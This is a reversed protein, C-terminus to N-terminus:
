RSRRNMSQQMTETSEMITELKEECYTKSVRSVTLYRNHM